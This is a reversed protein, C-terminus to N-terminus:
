KRKTYQTGKEKEQSTESGCMDDRLKKLAEIIEVRSLAENSDITNTNEESYSKVVM